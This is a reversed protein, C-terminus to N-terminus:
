KTKLTVLWMMIAGIGVTVLSAMWFYYGISYSHFLMHNVNAEDLPVQTGVFSLADLAIFITIATAGLTLFWRRFFALLLSLLWFANAFWALQGLFLGQWGLALVQIGLWTDKDFVMAPTICAIAYLFLSVVIVVLSGWCGVGSFFKPKTTTAPTNPSNASM